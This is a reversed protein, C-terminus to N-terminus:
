PKGVSLILQNSALIAVPVVGTGRLGLTVFDSVTSAHGASDTVVEGTRRGYGERPQSVRFREPRTVGSTFNTVADRLFSQATIDVSVITNKSDSIALPATYQPTLTLNFSESVRGPAPLSGAAKRTAFQIHGNKSLSVWMLEGGGSRYAFVRDIDSPVGFSFDFGGAANASFTLKTLDAPAAAVCDLVNDCQTLATVKGTANLTGTAATLHVPGNDVTRDLGILNWDGALSALPHRQEPFLVAGKLPSGPTDGSVQAVIVGAQSVVVDGGVPTRFRCAGNATLQSVSGDAGTVKLNPADVTVVETEPANGGSIANAVVRYRGSRLASCNDAAPQLLLAAPLSATNSLAALPLNPSGKAVSDALAALTIRSADLKVKLADLAKDFPNGATGGHAAVLPATLLNGFATVDVGAATLTDSVATLAAQVKADTLLTADFSRFAGAAAGGTLHALVLESAMTIHATASSGSGSALSHMVAGDTATVRLVCPLVGGSIPLSYSGNDKTTTSAAAPTGGACKVDVPRNALAAGTAATGSLTLSTEGGDGGDGGGCASLLLVITAVPTLHWRRSLAASTEPRCLPQHM